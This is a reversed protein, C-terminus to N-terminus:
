HARLEVRHNTAEDFWRKLSPPDTPLDDRWIRLGGGAVRAALLRGDPSMTIIGEHPDILKRSEVSAVDWLRDWSLLRASDPSFRFAASEDLVRSEGTALSWLRGQGGNQTSFLWRGDPSFGVEFITDPHGTLVRVRDSAIVCLRITRDSSGSALTRGDPSFAVDNISNTHGEFLRTTGNRLNWLRVIRMSPRVSTGFLPGCTAVLWQGDPSFRVRGSSLEEDRGHLLDASGTQLNWLRVTPDRKGVSALRTGDPSFAIDIVPGAHGELVRVEGTVVDWVRITADESASALRRGDPAFTWQQVLGRHGELLRAEGTAVSWIQIANGLAVAIRSGDPSFQPPRGWPNEDTLPMAPRLVETDTSTLDWSQVTGDRTGAAVHRGDPHLGLSSAPRAGVQLRRGLGSAMEWVRFGAEQSVGLVRAGNATVYVAKFAGEGGPLVRSTGDALNWVRLESSEDGSALRRGDPFYAVSTVPHAHGRLTSLLRGRTLDWTQIDNGIGLALRPENPSIAFSRGGRCLDRARQAKIDWVRFVADNSPSESQPSERSMFVLLSGDHTLAVREVRVPAEGEFLVQSAGSTPDMLRVRNLDALLVKGDASVAIDRLNGGRGFVTSLVRGKGSAVDWVGLDNVAGRSYLTKGDASFLLQPVHWTHGTLVRSAGSEASWLRITSDSSGSALTRGDPSFAVSSVTAAPGRLIRQAIGRNRADAAMIRAAGWDPANLPYLKLWAIATTPEEELSARAQSLILEANRAEAVDRERRIRAVSIVGTATLALLGIAAVTVATRHRALWRQALQAFSYRHVSVLQGTLYRKLDEALERATAYREAPKPALCKRVITLLDEPVRAEIEHLDIPPGAVVKLIVDRSTEGTYPLRGSLVHYLIAGLAYVDAREDVPEGRAQEPPMYVPTGMVDGAVTVDASHESETDTTDDDSRADRLDKALGWDIVVTEGFAGIIINPPKLDRHIIGNAHAYALAEAVTLVNPLLAIREEYFRTAGIVKDLSRGSVIRMAYFPEGSQWRGAEYVSVIAPHQLRATLLAERRFRVALTESAHLLEKVAVPRLLRRDRAAVIRGMGGRAIEHDFDYYDHPVEPFTAERRGDDVVSGASGAVTTATARSVSGVATEETRAPSGARTLTEDSGKRHDPPDPM